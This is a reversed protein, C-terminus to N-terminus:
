PVIAFTGQVPDGGCSATFAGNGPLSGEPVSVLWYVEGSGNAAAPREIITSGIFVSLDCAVGPATQGALMVQGDPRVQASVSTLTLASPVSRVEDVWFDDDLEDTRAFSARWADFEAYFDALTIGFASAFADGFSRGAALGDYVDAIASISLGRSGLLYQVAIYALPYADADMSAFGELESLPRDVPYENLMYGMMNYIEDQDTVGLPQVAQFGIAEATGEAFWLPEVDFSGAIMLNQYVHVLEHVLTEIREIPTLFQWVESGTYVEIESGFTTALTSDGGSDVEGLVYIRLNPLTAVGLYEAIVLQGLRIGEIVDYKDLEGVGPDFQFIAGYHVDQTRAQAEVSVPAVVPLGALLAIMMAVM